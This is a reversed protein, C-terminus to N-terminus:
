IMSEERLSAIADADVRVKGAASFFAQMKGAKSGMPVPREALAELNQLVGIVYAMSEDPIRLIIDMAKAQNESM